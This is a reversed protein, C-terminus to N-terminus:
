NSLFSLSSATYKKTGLVKDAQPKYGCSLISGQLKWGEVRGYRAM